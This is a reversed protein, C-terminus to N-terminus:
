LSSNSICTCMRFIENINIFPFLSFHYLLAKVYLCVRVCLCAYLLLSFSRRAGHTCRVGIKFSTICAEDSTYSGAGYGAWLRELPDLLWSSLDLLVVIRVVRFCVAMSCPVGCVVVSCPALCAAM